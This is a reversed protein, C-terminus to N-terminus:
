ASSPMRSLTADRPSPSTYLLCVGFLRIAEAENGQNLEEKALQYTRLWRMQWPTQANTNQVQQRLSRAMRDGVYINEDKSQKALDGLTEVMLQHSDEVSLSGPVFTPQSKRWCGVLLLSLALLSYFAIRAHHM